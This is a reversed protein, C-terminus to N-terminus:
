RVMQHTRRLAPMRPLLVDTGKRGQRPGAYLAATQQAIVTWCLWVKKPRVTSERTIVSISVAPGTRCDLIGHAGQGAAVVVRLTPIHM